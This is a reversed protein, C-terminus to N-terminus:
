SSLLNLFHNNRRLMGAGKSETWQVNKEFYKEYAIEENSKVKIIPDTELKWLIPLERFKIVNWSIQPPFKSLYPRSIRGAIIWRLFTEQHVVLQGKIQIQGSHILKYFFETGILLDIDAPKHFEPDASVIFAPIEM